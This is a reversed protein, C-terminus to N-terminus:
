AVLPLQESPLSARRSMLSVVPAVAPHEERGYPQGSGEIDQRDKFRRPVWPDGHPIYTGRLGDFLWQDRGYVRGSQTGYATINFRDGHDAMRLITAVSTAYTRLVRPLETLSSLQEVALPSETRWEGWAWGYSTVCPIFARLTM